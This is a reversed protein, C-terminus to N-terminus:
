RWPHAASARAPPYPPADAAATNLSVARHLDHLGDEVSRHATDIRLCPRTWAHYDRAVVAAWDPLRLGPVEAPRDEVRARHAAADSCVVEVEVLRAGAAQALDRWADRTLMWPNVCDAVVSLGGRLNDQAVAHATRYGADDVPGPVVGADRLAQEISDIRLWLAPIERALLRALTSKGAGPLGSFSVLM